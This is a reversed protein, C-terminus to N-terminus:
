AIGMKAYVDYQTRARNEWGSLFTEQSENNLCIDMYKAGARASVMWLLNSLGDSPRKTVLTRIAAVSVTGLNGDMVLDPYYAQRLNSVNLAQQLWTAVQNWGFNIGAEFLLDALVPTTSSIACIADCNMKNWYEQVYVYVAMPQTLNQMNGDWGFQTTLAAKYKTATTLTIGFKTPGGRDAPNNTYGGEVGIKDAIINDRTYQSLVSLM